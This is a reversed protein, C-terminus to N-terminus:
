TLKSKHDDKQICIVGNRFKARKCLMAPVTQVELKKRANEIVEAVNKDERDIFCIGRLRRASEFKPRGITWKQKKKM